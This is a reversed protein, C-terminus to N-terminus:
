ATLAVEAERRDGQRPEDGALRAYAGRRRLLSLHEGREVVRGGALVLIEDAAEIAADYPPKGDRMHRVINEIEVIADDVVLGIALVLAKMVADMVSLIGVAALAAAFAQVPHQAVRNM